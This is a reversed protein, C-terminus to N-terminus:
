ILDRKKIEDDILKWLVSFLLGQCGNALIRTRLGRGFLGIVGDKAIVDKIAQQYSIKETHTQRYTKVVRISNSVTDSCVSACFGILANRALKKPLNDKPVEINADLFNYTFFWPFHGAYTAAFTAMSGHYFVSPGHNRFKGMLKSIGQKGEVQMITKCTDVPMLFIRFSAAAGSACMSKAATPLDKTSDLSNMLTLVGTNAATDGFRSLPGQILAPGIGKYFRGIGGEKYLTKLAESTTTGYRYQYNMTTRLWMLTGVQLGMAAAGAVGGGLARKAAKDIVASFDVKKQQADAM